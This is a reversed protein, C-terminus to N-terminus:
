NSRTLQAVFDRAAELTDEKEAGAVVIKSGVVVEKVMKRQSWDPNTGQLLEATVMNVKDGGVSVLTNVGAADGDLIVLNGYNSYAYPMAVTVTPANNPMIVASLGATSATCSPAAGSSGCAGVTETIELVKVTVGDVTESEGEGLTVIRGSSTSTANSVPTLSWVAKGLKHAMQFEVKDDDLTDFISGRGSIYGEEVLAYDSSAPIPGVTETGSYYNPTPNSTPYFYLISDDDDAMKDGSSSGGNEYANYEFTADAPNYSTSDDSGSLANVGFVYYDVFENSRGTGAKEAVAFWVDMVGSTQNTLNREACATANTSGCTLAASNFMVGIESSSSQGLGAGWEMRIVGGDPSDFGSAGDGIKTYEVETINSTSAPQSYGYDSSSPSVRMVVTGLRLWTDSSTYTTGAVENVVAARRLDNSNSTSGDGVGRLVSSNGANLAVFFEKDSLEGSGTGDNRTVSFIAGSDSSTVKVYPPVIVMAVQSGTSNLPGNTATIEKTDDTVLDFKLNSRDSSTLDLGKYSLRWKEPSKVVKVYDGAALEDDGNNTVDEINESFVVITRLTDVDNASSTADLNKWGLAVEYGENMDGDQDLEQGSQLELEDSFIAVDAWKAGFTYGPAVKYVHFRFKRGNITQELTNGEFVKDQKIKEGNANYISIIASTTDGHAELDDLTFKVGESTLSDGQNLIASVSEKALKVMGGGVVTNEDSATSSPPEMESIVWEEGLFRIKVKHTVTAYQSSTSSGTSCYAYNSSNAQTCEPIGIEKGGPGDFKITYALFDVKAVVDDETTDFHNDGAIWLNQQEVYNNGAVNDRVTYDAFTTFQSGSIRYMDTESPADTFASSAGNTFPNAFESTDSTSMLYSSDTDTSNTGQRDWLERNLYDGILNTGQWTGTAISGPVTIELKVKENSIACGGTTNASTTATCTPTGSVQAILTQSKYTESVIKGAILAAAVGDSPNARSGVVVKAVPAGNDDVLTTSGFKLAAFAASSALITAGAVVAGIKKLNVKM